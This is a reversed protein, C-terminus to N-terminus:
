RPHDANATDKLSYQRYAPSDEYIEAEGRRAGSRYVRVAIAGNEGSLRDTPVVWVHAGPAGELPPCDAWVDGSRVTGLKMEKYAYQKWTIQSGVAFHGRM